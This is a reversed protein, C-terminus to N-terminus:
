LVHHRVSRSWSSCSYRSFWAVYLCRVKVTTSRLVRVSWQIRCQVGLFRNSADVSSYPSIWQGILSPSVQNVNWRCRETSSASVVVLILRTAAPGHLKGINDFVQWSNGSLLLKSCRRFICLIQQVYSHGFEVKSLSYSWFWVHSFCWVQFVCDHSPDVSDISPWAWKWYWVDEASAHGIIWSPWDNIV